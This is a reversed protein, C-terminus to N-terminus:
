WFERRSISHSNWLEAHFLASREKIPGISKKKLAVKHLYAHLTGMSAMCIGCRALVQLIRGHKLWNSKVKGSLNWVASSQVSDRQVVMTNSAPFPPNSKFVQLLTLAPSATIPNLGLAYFWTEPKDQPRGKARSWDEDKLGVNELRSLPQKMMISPSGLSWM